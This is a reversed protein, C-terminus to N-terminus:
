RRKADPWSLTWFQHRRPLTVIRRSGAPIPSSDKLMEARSTLAQLESREFDQPRTMLVMIEESTLGNGVILVQNHQAMWGLLNLPPMLFSDPLRPTPCIKEKQAKEVEVVWAGILVPIIPTVSNGIRKIDSWQSPVAMFKECLNPTPRLNPNKQVIM